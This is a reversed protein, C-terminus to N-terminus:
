TDSHRMESSQLWQDFTLRGPTSGPSGRFVGSAAARWYKGPLSVGIPRRRVGDHAFMRRVLDILVEDRPGVLDDTRGAPACAAIDVLREAVERAAVPRLLMKPVVAVPGLSGQQVAQGVFEHFQTARLISWPVDSGSVMHEQALKGASYGTDLGDIGVISLAIHHRVESARAAALLNRSAGTFFGVAKRTSMTVQSTVDIVVQAGTMAETLGEGTTVDQGSKRSLAVVDHGRSQAEALVHRGVTGTAGAIVIRM